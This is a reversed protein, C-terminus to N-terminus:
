INKKVEFQADFGDISILQNNTDVIEFTYATLGYPTSNFETKFKITEDDIDILSILNSSSKTGNVIETIQHQATGDNLRLKLLSQKVYPFSCLEKYDSEVQLEQSIADNDIQYTYLVVNNDFGAGVLYSHSVYIKVENGDHRIKFPINLDLAKAQNQYVKNEVKLVEAGFYNLGLAITIPINIEDGNKLAKLNFTINRITNGLRLVCDKFRYLFFNNKFYPHTSISFPNNKTSIFTEM